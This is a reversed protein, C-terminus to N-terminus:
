AGAPAALAAILAILFFVLLIFIRAGACCQCKPALFLFVARWGARTKKALYETSEEACPNYKPFWHNPQNEEEDGISAVVDVGRNALEALRANAESLLV